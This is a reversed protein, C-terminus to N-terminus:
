FWWRLYRHMRELKFEVGGLPYQCTCFGAITIAWYFARSRLFAGLPLQWVIKRWMIILEM